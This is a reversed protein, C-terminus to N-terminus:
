YCYTTTVGATSGDIKIKSTGSGFDEYLFETEVESALPNSACGMQEATDQIGDNDDDIDINDTIGDGDSDQYIQVGEAEILFRFPNEDPDNSSIQMTADFTGVASPDFAITLSVSTGSPIITNAAPQSTISFTASSGAQFSVPTTGLTLDLYGNNTITFTRSKLGSTVDQIGFNTLNSTEPTISGNIISNSNGAVSIDQPTTTNATIKVEYDEFEERQGDTNGCPNNSSWWQRTGIRMITNGTTASGPITINRTAFPSSETGNTAYVMEGSDNFVGNRNFDIYAAWGSNSGSNSITLPYTSGIYLDAAAM